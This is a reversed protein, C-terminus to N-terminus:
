DHFYLYRVDTGSSDGTTVQSDTSDNKYPNVVYVDVSISLDDETVDFKGNSSNYFTPTITFTERSSTTLKTVKNTGSEASSPNEADAMQNAISNSITSNMSTVKMLQTYAQVLLLSAIGLIALAVLCEILTFGSLSKKNRM